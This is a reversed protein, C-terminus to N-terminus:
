GSAIIASPSLHLPHNYLQMAHILASTLLSAAAPPLSQMPHVVVPNRRGSRCHMQLVVALLAQLLGHLQPAFVWVTAENPAIASSHKCGYLVGWSCHSVPMGHKLSFPEVFVFIYGIVAQRRGLPSCVATDNSLM